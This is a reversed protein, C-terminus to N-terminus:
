KGVAEHDYSLVRALRWGGDELLWLHTFKATSTLVEEQDPYKAYFRHEGTQIAGYLEGNNKMPFVKLSGEVLERRAKYDLKCLGNEISAIFDAKSGTIGSQDHYFEMDESVLAEFQSIDCTNFGVDFLLSDRARLTQFLEPNEEVQAPLVNALLLCLVLSLFHKM